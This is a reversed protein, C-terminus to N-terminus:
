IVRRARTEVFDVGRGVTGEGEFDAVNLRSEGRLGGLIGCFGDTTFLTKAVREVRGTIGTGAGVEGEFRLIRLVERLAEVEVKEMGTPNLLHLGDIFCFMLPPRFTLLDKLLSMALPLASHTPALSSFRSVSLDIQTTVVEPLLRVLQFILSLVVMSVKSKAPREEEDDEHEDEEQEEGGVIPRSLARRQCFYSLVPIGANQTALVLHATTLTYRSPREAQHMGCIWLSASIPNKSWRAIRTLIETHLQLEKSRSALKEVLGNQAYKQLRLGSALLQAHTYVNHQSHSLSSSTPPESLQLPPSPIHTSRSYHMDWLIAKAEQRLSTQISTAVLSEVRGLFRGEVEGLFRELARAIDINQGEKEEASQVLKQVHAETVLKGENELRQALAQMKTTKGSILKELANTDFASTLRHVSSKFWFMISVLLQFILTYLSAIYRKMHPNSSHIILQRKWYSIDEGLNELCDSIAMAIKRHNTTAQPKDIFPRVIYKDQTPLVAFVDKFDYLSQCLNGFYNKFKSMKGKEKAKWASHATAVAQAVSNFDPPSDIPARQTKPICKQFDEWAKALELSSEDLKKEEETEFHQTAGLLFLSKWQQRLIVANKEDEEDKTEQTALVVALQDDPHDTLVTHSFQRIIRKIPETTTHELTETTM